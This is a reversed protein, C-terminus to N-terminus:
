DLLHAFTLYTYDNSHCPSVSSVSVTCDPGACNIVIDIHRCRKLIIKFIKEVIERKAIDMVLLDIGEHELEHKLQQNIEKSEIDLLFM